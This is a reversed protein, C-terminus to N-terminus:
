ASPVYVRSLPFRARWLPNMQEYHELFLAVFQKADILSVRSSNRAKSLAHTTFGGLAVCIGKEGESLSGLLQSVAPEGVSGTGSKVQVKVFPPELGLPDPHAIVDVGHDGSASTVTATYGIAELVAAVVHEFEAGTRSWRKLLYDETEQQASELLSMGPDTPDDADEDDDRPLVSPTRKVVGGGITPTRDAPSSSDQGNLVAIVEELHDDSTSVSLFAGFSHLASKSFATRPVIKLWEVDRFNPYDEGDTEHYNPHYRYDSSIRGIAIERTAKIPFVVPDGVQMKHAFRFVQGYCARVRHESWNPWARKMAERMADRTKYQRLDGLRPWGIAVFGEDRARTPLGDQRGIHVVWLTERDEFM